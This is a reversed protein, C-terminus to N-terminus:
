AANKKAGHHMFHGAILCLLTIACLATGVMHPWVAAEGKLIKPVFQGMPILTAVVGLLYGKTPSKLGWYGGIIALVGTLGAAALSIVSGKSIMAELGMGIMAAGFLFLVTSLWKM